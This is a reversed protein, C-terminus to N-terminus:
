GQHSNKSSERYQPLRVTFLSGKGLQSQVQIVGHHAQAIAQTIALGLGSGGTTRARDSNVRYFRDFIRSQHEPAIGIGSDQVKIFIHRDDQELKASIDGGKLTYRIANAALNAV